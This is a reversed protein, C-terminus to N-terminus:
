CPIIQPIRVSFVMAAMAIPKRNAWWFRSFFVNFTSASSQKLAEIEMFQKTFQGFRQSEDAQCPRVIPAGRRYRGAPAVLQTRSFM